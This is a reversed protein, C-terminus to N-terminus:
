PADRYVLTSSCILWYIQLRLSEPVYWTIVNCAYWGFPDQAKPRLASPATFRITAGCSSVILRRIRHCSTQPKVVFARRNTFCFVIDLALTRLVTVQQLPIEAAKSIARAPGFRRFKVVHEYQEPNKYIYSAKAANYVMFSFMRVTSVDTDLLQTPTGYTQPGSLFFVFLSTNYPPRRTATPNLAVLAKAAYHRLM